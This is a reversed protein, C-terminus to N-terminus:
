MLGWILGYWMIASMQVLIRIEATSIPLFEAILLRAASQLTKALQSVRCKYITNYLLCVIM